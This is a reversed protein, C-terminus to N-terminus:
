YYIVSKQGQAALELFEFQGFGGASHPMAGTHFIQTPFGADGACRQFCCQALHKGIGIALM